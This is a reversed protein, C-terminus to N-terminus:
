IERATEVEADFEEPSLQTTLNRERTIEIWDADDLPIGENHPTTTLTVSM